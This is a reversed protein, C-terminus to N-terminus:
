RVKRGVGALFTCWDDGGADRPADPRWQPVLVAGPDVLELDGFYSEVEPRLRPFLPNPTRRYLQLVPSSWDVEEEALGHTLVVLSGPVVEEVYRAVMERPRDEDSVFHLLAVMLVAMPQSFDLVRRVEPHDLVEDPRRADAMIATANENGALIARAHAIAVPDLDVYAVRASPDFRQAIEHVNGVTPIGSGLDLFQRIGAELCYRVSRHLFARNAQALRPLTPLMEIVQDAVERDVRFNHSGGLYYDYMRAVNPRDLDVGAPAWDPRSM